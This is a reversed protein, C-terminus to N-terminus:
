ERTATKVIRGSADAYQKHGYGRRKEKGVLCHIVAAVSVDQKASSLGAREM